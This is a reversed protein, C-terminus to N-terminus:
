RGGGIGMQRLQSLGRRAMSNAPDLRAAESFQAFATQFDGGRAAIEALVAHPEARDPDAAIAQRCAEAAGDLNGVRLLALVLNHQLPADHPNALLARRYQHIAEDWHQERALLNGLDFLTRFDDPDTALAQRYYTEARTTDGRRASLFGLTSNAALSGPNISLTHGFLTADDRWFTLQRISLGALVIVALGVAAWAARSRFAALLGAVAMAVGVLSLYAYRDAVTSYHQFDFPTLGLTPLMGAIFVAICAPGWAARRRAVWVVVLLLLPVLAMLWAQRHAMLWRPSRGYDITLGLPVVLKWLYFGVADLAVLIRAWLAPILVGKPPLAVRTVVTIAVSGVLWVALPWATRWARRRLLLDVAAVVLPVCVATPKTLLAAAFCLTAGVLHVSTRTGAARGADKSSTADSYALYQWTALLSFFGSLPTYMSSAWAVPEVQLPHVAFVAAGMWAAWPVRTLRMLVLYLAVASLAHALWNLAHFAAPVFEIPSGSEHPKQFTAATLGWLSYTIPVYFTERPSSWYREVSQFTPPQYAPNETIAQQDDWNLFDHGLVPCFVALTMAALAVARLFNLRRARAQSAVAGAPLGKKPLPRQKAKM